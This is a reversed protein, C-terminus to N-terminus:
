FMERNVLTGLLSGYPIGFLVLRKAELPKRNTFLATTAESLGYKLFFEKTSVAEIVFHPKYDIKKSKM